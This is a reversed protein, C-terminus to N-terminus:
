DDGIAALGNVFASNLRPGLRTIARKPLVEFPEGARASNRQIHRETRQCGLLSLADDFAIAVCFKGSDFAEKSPKLSLLVLQMNADEEAAVSTIGGARVTSARPKAGLGASHADM